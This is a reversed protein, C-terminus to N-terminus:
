RLAKAFIVIVAISITQVLSQFKVFSEVLSERFKRTLRIKTRKGHCTSMLTGPFVRAVLVAADCAELISLGAKGELQM